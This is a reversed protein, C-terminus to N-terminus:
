FSWKVRFFLANGQNGFNGQLDDGWFLQAVLDLDWNTALSYTFAPYLIVWNVEFAYFGGFNIFSLPSLQRGFNGFVTHRNPMLNKATPEFLLFSAVDASSSAGSSTLLYSVLGTWGNKFAHEISVTASLAVDSTDPADGSPVFLTAEGKFGSEGISGAWGVGAAWDEQFRGALAQLDYGATNTKFILAGVNESSEEALKFAAEVSSAPGVYYEFRAADAGPREEYDFDLYNFANFLDNPNWVPSIGWNIRQRGIRAEFSSGAYDLWLRDIITNMVLGDGDIWLIELPLVGDYATVLDGFGPTASVVEGFFIRNRFEAGLRVGNPLHLRFNLRNHILNDTALTDVDEILLTSM